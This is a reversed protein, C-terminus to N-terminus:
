GQQRGAKSSPQMSPCRSLAALRTSGQAPSHKGQLGRRVTDEEAGWEQGGM